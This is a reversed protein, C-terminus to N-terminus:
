FFDVFTGGLDLTKGKVKIVGMFSRPDKLWSYMCDDGPNKTISNLNSQNVWVPTGEDSEQGLQGSYSTASFLYVLFDQPNPWNDFTRESNDFLIAGRPKIGLPTLGTEEETERIASQLRGWCFRGKEFNQLKGGPLTYFGSNPDNKREGKRVMLVRENVCLYTMTGYKM